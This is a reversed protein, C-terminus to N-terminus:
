PQDDPTNYLGNKITWTRGGFSKPAGFARYKMEFRILGDVHKQPLPIFTQTESNYNLGALVPTALTYTHRNDDLVSFTALLKTTFDMPSFWDYIYRPQLRIVPESDFTIKTNAGFPLAGTTMADALILPTFGDLELCVCFIFYLSAVAEAKLHIYRHEISGSAAAPPPGNGDMAYMDMVQISFDGADGALVAPQVQLDQLALNTDWQPPFAAVEIAIVNAKGAEINVPGKGADKDDASNNRGLYGGGVLIRGIGALLLVEYPGGVPVAVSIYGQGATGEGRYYLDNAPSPDGIKRFVAEYSDVFHEVADPSISRAASQSKQPLKVKVAVV